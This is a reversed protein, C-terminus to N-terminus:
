PLRVPVTTTARNTGAIDMAMALHATLSPPTTSPTRAGGSWGNIGDLLLVDGVAIDRNNVVCPASFEIGRFSSVAFEDCPESQVFLPPVIAHM